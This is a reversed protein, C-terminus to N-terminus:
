HQKIQNQRQNQKNQNAQKPKSTKTQKNQNAQNSQAGLAKQANLEIQVYRATEADLEIQKNLATQEEIATKITLKDDPTSIQTVMYPEKFADFTNDNIKVLMSLVHTKDINNHSTIRGYLEGLTYVTNKYTLQGFFKKLAEIQKHADASQNFSQVIEDLQTKFQKDYQTKFKEDYQITFKDITKAAGGVLNLYKQKYKLYKQKYNLM